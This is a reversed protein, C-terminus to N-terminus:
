SREFAWLAALTVAIGAMVSLGPLGHGLLSEIVMVGAPTLYTYAMVKAPTLRLSAYQLLYFTISTPVAALWILGLWQWGALETWRTALIGPADWLLLLVVAALFSLFTLRVPPDGRATKQLFTPYAAYAICGLFYVLEGHGLALARLRALSGGFVVWVAGLGAVVLLLLAAPSLRRGLVLWGIAASLLPVLAFIAGTSLPTVTELAKFMSVFFAVFILGVVGARFVLGRDLTFPTRSAVMVVAFVGSALVFRMFTLPIPAITPALLAGVSYSTSVLLGLAVM